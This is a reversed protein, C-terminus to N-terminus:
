NALPITFFVSTGGAPEDRLDITGGHSEVITRCISLGVGMGDAKTSVFSDFMQHRMEAPMGCGTDTVVIEALDGLARAQVAIDRRDSGEVADMANRILNIVVQQIQIPNAIVTLSPDITQRFAIGKSRSGLLALASADELVEILRVPKAAVDKRSLMERVRRIIQGARLAAKEAQDTASVIPQDASTAVLMKKIGALYASIAMLPQNLEHALASGLAGMASNRSAQLLQAKLTGVQQLVDAFAKREADIDLLAVVGGVINGAEDRVPRASIRIWLFTGDGRQYNVDISPNEEGALMMRALPYEHGDVRRGDEHFSVWEDYSHIDPSHRVPHRLLQEVYDNGGVIRGSPLEAMVLGVPVTDVITRLQAEHEALAAEAAKRKDIQQAVSVFFEPKGAADSVLSVMLNLWVQSGDKRIYRKEMSYREAKGELLARVNALDADLDDPHTIQQFGGALLESKSYGTLEALSNNVRLFRGDLSVQAVAVAAHELIIDSVPDVNPPEPDHAPSPRRELDSTKRVWM